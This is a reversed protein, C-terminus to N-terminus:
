DEEDEEEDDEDFEEEWGYQSPAEGKSRVVQPKATSEDLAKLVRCQFLWEDGFDFLYKFQMGPGLGAQRLTVEASSLEGKEEPDSEVCAESNRSWLANDLFFIHLHDNDFGFANLVARSFRELSNDADIRIHRYCGTGLSVSIVYSLKPMAANSRRPM